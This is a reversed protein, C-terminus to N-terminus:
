RGSRIMELRSQLKGDVHVEMWVPPGPLAKAFWYRRVGRRGGADFRVTYRWCDYLGAETQRADEDIKTDAAPFSAHKQLETWASRNRRAPRVPKKAADLTVSEVEAETASCSVFRMVQYTKTGDATELVFEISRGEPCGRRIEDARFPTPAHDAQMRNADPPTGRDHSPVHCAALVLLFPTCRTM